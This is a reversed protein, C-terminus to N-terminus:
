REMVRRRKLIVARRSCTHVDIKAWYLYVPLCILRTMEPIVPCFNVLCHSAILVDDDPLSFNFIHINQPVLIDRYRRRRCPAASLAALLFNPRSRRRQSQSAASSSCHIALVVLSSM